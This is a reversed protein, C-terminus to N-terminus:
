LAGLVLLPIDEKDVPKCYDELSRIGYDFSTYEQPFIQQIRVHGALRSKSNVVKYIYVREEDDFYWYKQM